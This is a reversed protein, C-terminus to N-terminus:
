VAYNNCLHTKPQGCYFAMNLYNNLYCISKHGNTREHTHQDSFSTHEPVNNPM